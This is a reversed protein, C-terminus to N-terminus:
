GREAARVDDVQRTFAQEADTRQRCQDIRERAAESQLFHDALVHDLRQHLVRARASGIALELELVATQARATFTLHARHHAAGRPRTLEVVRGCDRFNGKCEASRSGCGFVRRSSRRIFIKIVPILRPMPRAVANAQAARPASSPNSPLGEARWRSDASDHRFAPAFRTSESAASAVRTGSSSRAALSNKSANPAGSATM